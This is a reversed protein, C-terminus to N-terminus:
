LHIMGVRLTCDLDCGVYLGELDENFELSIMAEKAAKHSGLPKILTKEDGHQYLYLQGGGDTAAIIDPRQPIHRAQWITSDDGTQVTVVEDTTRNTDPFQGNLMDFSHIAGELTTAVLGNARGQRRDFEVSCIGHKLNTEFVPQGARIDVVRLDGNDYGAVVLMDDASTGTTDAESGPRGLAVCWVEHGERGKKLSMDSIPIPNGPAEKHNQRMDWLRVTGDRCGTVFEPRGSLSGAGDMCNVVDDHAKFMSLPVETRSLDWLGVSGEFGGALLHPM